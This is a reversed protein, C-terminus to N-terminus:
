RQSRCASVCDGTPPMFGNCRQRDPAQPARERTFAWANVGRPIKNVVDNMIDPIVFRRCAIPFLEPIMMSRGMKSRSPIVWSVSKSNSVSPLRSIM